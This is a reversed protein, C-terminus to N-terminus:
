ASAQLQVEDAHAAAQEPQAVASYFVSSGQKSRHIRSKAVLNELTTRVVKTDVARDSHAQRVAEAIEVASRPESQEAVHQHVLEILTPQAPQAAKEAAVKGDPSQATSAKKAKKVPRRTGSASPAKERPAPVVAADARAPEPVVAPAGLAQRMTVLVTHDHQLTALQEQLAALETSIREQERANHELDSTVQSIYQATLETAPTTPEPM